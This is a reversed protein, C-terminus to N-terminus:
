SAPRGLIRIRSPSGDGPDDLVYLRVRPLIRDFAELWLRDRTVDAARQYEALLSCFRDAEGQARSVKALGYGEAERLQREGEGRARARISDADTRAREVMREGDKKASVVDKFADAVARPPEITELQAGALRVGAGYADLLRQASEIVENQVGAKATTLAKDVPLSGVHEVLVAQVASRVLRDPASTRTLYAAPDALRYQVVLTIKLINSDGTLIDTATTDRIAGLDRRAIAERQEPLLGVYVRRTETTKPTDVRCVPWPPAYRLGPGIQQGAPIRGFWRVVAQEDPEVFYFGSLLYAVLALAVALGIAYPRKRRPRPPDPQPPRRGM